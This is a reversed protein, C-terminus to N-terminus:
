FQLFIHLLNKELELIVIWGDNKNLLDASSSSQDVKFSIPYLSDSQRKFLECEAPTCSIVITSGYDSLGM